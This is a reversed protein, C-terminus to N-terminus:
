SREISSSPSSCRLFFRPTTNQQLLAELQLRRHYNVADLTFGTGLAIAGLLGFAVSLVALPVRTVFHTALWEGIVVSGCLISLGVCCAAVFSFFVLPNCQRFITFITSLVRFGDKFTNLKSYSGEPRDVYRIPIGLVRLRAQAAFLTIDTELQFGEVLVPYSKVFARSLARYGTM